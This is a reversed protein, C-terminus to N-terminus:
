MFRHTIKMLDACKIIESIGDEMNVITKWGLNDMKSFDIEYDRGDTDIYGQDAYSVFCGTKEKLYEALQQKTWNGKPDGINYTQSKMQEFNQLGFAIASAIDRCHVFSRRFSSQFMVLAREHIAKYVLDNVLLDVRMNGSVGYATSFRYIISEPRVIQEGTIKTRAYHSLANLPSQETCIGEVKGYVSGTSAFVMPMGKPKCNVVNHTGEVNVLAALQSLKKCIPEGVLAALHVVGDIGDFAKRVVIEDLIDGYQFEFNPQSCRSILYDSQRFLNDLVRVQYGSNLLHDVLVTGLFGGGGTVLIKTM